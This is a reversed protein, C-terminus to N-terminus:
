PDPCRYEFRATKADQFMPVRCLASRNLPAWAIYVPAEFGPVLRKFSNVTPAVLVTLAEAHELIGAMFQQGMESLENIKKTSFLNQEGQFLSLHFHMGNGNENGFPKPMFTASYGIKAALARVIAKYTVISDATRLVDSHEIEIEYQGSGVEHHHVKCSIGAQTLHLPFRKIVGEAIANPFIDAYGGDDVPKKDKLLFFEPEPGVKLKWGKSSLKEDIISKLRSRTDGIFIKGHQYIDCMVAIKPEETYSLEILSEPDPILHLDSNELPTFGAVSSGDISAGEIFVPDSSATQLDHIAVPVNMAKLKGHIDVFRIEIMNFM